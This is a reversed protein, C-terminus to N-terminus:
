ISDEFTAVMNVVGRLEEFTFMYHNEPNKGNETDSRLITILSDYNRITIAGAKQLFMIINSMVRDTIEVEGTNKSFIFYETGNDTIRQSPEPERTDFQTKIFEILDEEVLKKLSIKEQM